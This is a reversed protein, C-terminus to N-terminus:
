YGSALGGIRTWVKKVKEVNERHNRSVPVLYPLGALPHGARVANEMDDVSSVANHCKSVQQF